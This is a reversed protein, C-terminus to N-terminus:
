SVCAGSAGVSSSSFGYARKTRFRMSSACRRPGGAPLRRQQCSKFIDLFISKVIYGERTFSESPGLPFRYEDVEYFRVSYPTRTLLIPYGQSADRPSYVQTYLEVGDRMPVMYEAKAYQARVDHAEQAELAGRPVVAVVVIGAAMTLEIPRAIGM